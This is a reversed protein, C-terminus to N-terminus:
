MRTLVELTEKNGITVEVDVSQTVNEAVLQEVMIPVTAAQTQSQMGHAPIDGVEEHQTDSIVPKTEQIEPVQHTEFANSSGIGDPNDKPKWESIQKQSNVPKKGKDVLDALKDVNRPYLWRCSNINHGISKCHTCFEPLGEYEIAAPFAFGEREVMVEYFIDKALDLDVLIRAYHGFLRNRTVHDILLPTGVAGAIEYLTREM